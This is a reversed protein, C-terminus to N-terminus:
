RLAARAAAPTNTIIGTVGLAALERIRDPDDVTWPNVELGLAECRAVLAVDVFPDWPNIAGHGAAAAREVADPDVALDFLLQATSLAPALEKVRALTPEDFSSVQIPQESGRQTVLSVVLEAVELGHDSGEGGLDGPSNKIEVNVGMGACADLAEDLLPVGAPRAAAPTVAVGVGGSYFPDHHVVLQGDGSLRVDLEVWDAGEALAGRFAELTNEPHAASAGRHAVIFPMRLTSM